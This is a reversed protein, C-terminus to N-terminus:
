EMAKGECAAGDYWDDLGNAFVLGRIVNGLAEIQNGITEAADALRITQQAKVLAVYADDLHQITAKAENTRQRKTM